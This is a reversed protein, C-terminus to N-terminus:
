APSVICQYLARIKAKQPATATAWLPLKDEYILTGPRVLTVDPNKNCDLVDVATIFIEEDAAVDAVGFGTGATREVITRGVLTGSEVWRAGDANAAFAATVLRSGGPMLKEPTLQEASWAPQDFGQNSWTVQAM